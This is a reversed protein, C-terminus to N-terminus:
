EVVIVVVAVKVSSAVLAKIIDRILINVTALLVIMLKNM